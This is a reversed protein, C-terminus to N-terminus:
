DPGLVHGPLHHRCHHDGRHRLEAARPRPGLLVPVLDELEGARRTSARHRAPEDPRAESTLSGIALRGVPLYAPVAPDTNCRDRRLFRFFIRTEADYIGTVGCRQTRIRGAHRTATSGSPAPTAEIAPCSPNESPTPADGRGGERPRGQCSPRTRKQDPPG